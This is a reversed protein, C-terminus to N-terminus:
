QVHAGTAILRARLLAYYYPHCVVTGPNIWLFPKEPVTFNRIDLESRRLRRKYYPGKKPFKTRMPRPMHVNEIIRIAALSGMGTM